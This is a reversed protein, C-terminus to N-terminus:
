LRAAWAAREAKVRQVATALERPDQPWQRGWERLKIEWVEWPRQLAELAPDSRKHVRLIWKLHLPCHDVDETVFCVPAVEWQWVHGPAYIEFNGPHYALHHGPHFWQRDNTLGNPMMLEVRAGHRCIRWLEAAPRLKDALHELVDKAVVEAVSDGDWPWPYVNLDHVQGVGPREMCDHNVWGAKFDTGCGLNLRM